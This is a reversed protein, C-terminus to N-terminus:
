INKQRVISFKKILMKICGKQLKTSKNANIKIDLYDNM